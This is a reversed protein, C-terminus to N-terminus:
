FIILELNVFLCIIMWNRIFVMYVLSLFVREMLGDIPFIRLISQKQLVTRVM